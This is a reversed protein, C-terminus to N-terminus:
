SRTELSRPPNGPGGFLFGTPIQFHFSLEDDRGWCFVVACLITESDKRYYEHPPQTPQREGRYPRYNDNPYAHYISNIEQTKSNIM